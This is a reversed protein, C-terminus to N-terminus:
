EFSAVRGTAEASEVVKVPLAVKAAVPKGDVEAPLFRWQRVADLVVRALTDDTASKVSFAAPRGKEDVVFELQVLGGNFEAGVTPSVVALPVPVGPDKRCSELYAQEEPTAAFAAFQLLGVSLLIVLIRAVKM